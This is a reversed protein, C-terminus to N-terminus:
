IERRALLITVGRQSVLFKEGLYKRLKQAMISADVPTKEHLRFYKGRRRLIGDANRRSETQRGAYVLTNLYSAISIRNVKISM